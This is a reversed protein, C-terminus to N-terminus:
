TVVRELFNGPKVVISRKLYNTEGNPTLGGKGYLTKNNPDYLAIWIFPYDFCEKLYALTTKILADVSDDERLNQLLQGLHVIQQAGLGSKPPQDNQNDTSM